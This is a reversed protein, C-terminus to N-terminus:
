HDLGRLYKKNVIQQLWLEITLASLVKQAQMRPGKIHAQLYLTNYDKTTFHSYLATKPNLLNGILNATASEKIWEPYNAFSAPKGMKYKLVDIYYNLQSRLNNILNPKQSVLMGTSASPITAFLKPEYQLLARNYVNSALRYEDPLSYSLEMLKTDMFPMRQHILKSPEEIGMTVFRRGRNYILYPDVCDVDFYSNMPDCLEAYRGYYVSAITANIRTNLFTKSFFVKHVKELYSGGLVVDGLFGSLNVDIIGQIENMIQPYHMHYMNLMGDTKWVSQFRAELWNAGNIEFHKNEVNAVSAVKRAIKVEPTESLGFTFTFVPIDKYVGALIARSDLGGSLSIGLKTSNENTSRSRVAERLLMAMEHAADEITLSSQRPSDAWGWYKRKRLQGESIKFEYITSPEVLEVGEFWTDTGLLHGLDIFCDMLEKRFKMEFEKFFLFSKLEPTMILKGNKLCFYLPKLGYRDTVITVSRKGADYVIANYVGDIGKLFLDLTGKRYHQLLLSATEGSKKEHYIEGDIWLKIDGDDVTLQTQDFFSFFSKALIFEVDRHLVAHETKPSYITSQIANKISEDSTALASGCIGVFGAM